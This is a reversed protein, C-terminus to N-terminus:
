KIIKNKEKIGECSTKKEEEEEKDERWVRQAMLLNMKQGKKLYLCEYFDTTYMDAQIPM